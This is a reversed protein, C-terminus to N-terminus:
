ARAQHLEKIWARDADTYHGESCTHEAYQWAWEIWDVPLLQRSIIRMCHCCVLGWHTGSKAIAVEPYILKGGAEFPRTIVTRVRGPQEPKM